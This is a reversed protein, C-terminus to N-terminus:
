DEKKINESLKSIFDDLVGQSKADLQQYTKAISLILNYTPTSEDLLEAVIAATEDVPLNFMEGEGTRLWDPNVNFERCINNIAADSPFRNGLEYGAINNRSTRLRDSFQQQTFGLTKRLQKIRENM